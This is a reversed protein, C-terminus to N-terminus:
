KPVQRRAVARMALVGIVFCIPLTVPWLHAAIVRYPTDLGQKNFVAVYVPPIAILWLYIVLIWLM